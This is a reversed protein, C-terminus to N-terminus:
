PPEDSMAPPTITPISKAKVRERGCPLIPSIRERRPWQHGRRKEDDSGSAGAPMHKGSLGQGLLHHFAARPHLKRGVRAACAIRPAERVLDLDSLHRTGSERPTTNGGFEEHREANDGANPGRFPPHQRIPRRSDHAKAAIRRQRREKRSKRMFDRRNHMFLISHKTPDVPQNCALDIRNGGGIRIDLPDLGAM